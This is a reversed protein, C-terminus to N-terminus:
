LSNQRENELFLSTERLRRKAELNSSKTKMLKGSNGHFEGKMNLGNSNGARKLREGKEAMSFLHSM